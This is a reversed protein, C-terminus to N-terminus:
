IIEEIKKRIMKMWEKDEISILNHDGSQQLRKIRNFRMLFKAQNKNYKM